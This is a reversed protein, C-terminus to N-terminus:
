EERPDVSQQISTLGSAAAEDLFWLLRGNAPVVGAAPPLAGARGELVSKVAPVKGSGTVLFLITTAQNIVPLTLTLRDAVGKPSVTHVAWRTREDVAPSGPFLSATHADDGLGLLVLDFRPWAPPTIGFCQALEAAYQEAAKARDAEEGRMRHVQAGAIGLPRFLTEDAMRYNSEGHDPPVCREDGFFWEAKSWEFSTSRTQAVIAAHLARPTSGGALAIRFQGTRGITDRGLWLFFEAAEQALEEITRFVRLEPARTM